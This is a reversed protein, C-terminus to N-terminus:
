VDAEERVGVVVGVQPGEGSAVYGDPVRHKALVVCFLEEDAEAVEEGEEDGAVGGLPLRVEGQPYAAGTAPVARYRDDFFDAPVELLLTDVAGLDVEENAM